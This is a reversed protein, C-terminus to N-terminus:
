ESCGLSDCQPGDARHPNTLASPALPFASPKLSLALTSARFHHFTTQFSIHLYQKSSERFLGMTSGNTLNSTRKLTQYIRLHVRNTSPEFGSPRSCNPNLPKTKKFM